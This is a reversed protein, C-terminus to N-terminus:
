GRRIEGLVAQLCTNNPCQSVELDYCVLRSTQVRLCWSTQDHWGLISLQVCQAEGICENKSIRDSRLINTVVKLVGSFLMCNFLSMLEGPVACDAAALLGSYPELTPM